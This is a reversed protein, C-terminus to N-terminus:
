LEEWQIEVKPRRALLKRYGEATIKCRRIVLSKLAPLAALYDISADSVRTRTLDLHELRELDGLAKLSHDNLRTRQFGLWELEPWAQADLADGIKCSSIVLSRLPLGLLREAERDNLPTGDVTLMSITPNRSILSIFKDAGDLDPTDFYKRVGTPYGSFAPVFRAMPYTQVPSLEVHAHFEKLTSVDKAVREMHKIQSAVYTSALALMLVIVLSTRLSFRALRRPQDVPTRMKLM